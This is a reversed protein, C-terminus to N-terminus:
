ARGRGEGIGEGRDGRWKSIGIWFKAFRERVEEKIENVSSREFCL